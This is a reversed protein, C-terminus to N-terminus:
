AHAKKYDEQKAELLWMTEAEYNANNCELWLDVQYDYEGSIYRYSGHNHYKYCWALTSRRGPRSGHEGGPTRRM